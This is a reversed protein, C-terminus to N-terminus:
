WMGLFVIRHKTARMEALPVWKAQPDRIVLRLLGRQVFAILNLDFWGLCAGLSANTMPGLVMWSLVGAPVMVWLLIGRIVLLLLQAVESM